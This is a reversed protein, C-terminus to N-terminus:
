EVILLSGSVITPQQDDWFINFAFSIRRLAVLYFQKNIASKKEFSKVHRLNHIYLSLNKENLITLGSCFDYTRLQSFFNFLKISYKFYGYLLSDFEIM